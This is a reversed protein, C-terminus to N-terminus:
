DDTDDLIVFRVSTRPAVTTLEVRVRTHVPLAVRATVSQGAAVRFPGRLLEKTAGTQTFLEYRGPSAGGRVVVDAHGSGIDQVFLQLPRAEGANASTVSIVIAGVTLGLAATYWGVTAARPRNSLDVACTGPRRHCWGLVTLGLVASGVSWSVRTLGGPIVDLVLGLLIVGILLGGVGTLVADLADRRRLRVLRETVAAAALVALVTAAPRSLGTAAVVAAAIVLVVRALLDLHRRSRFRGSRIASAAAPGALRSIRM